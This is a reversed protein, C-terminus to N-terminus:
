GRQRLRYSGKGIREFLLPFRAIHALLNAGPNSGPVPVGRKELRSLIERYHLGNPGAESLVAEVQQVLFPPHVQRSGTTQSKTEDAARDKPMSELPRSGAEEDALGFSIEIYRRLADHQERVIDRERVQEEVRQNCEDLRKSLAALEQKLRMELDSIGGTNPSKTSLPARGEQMASM